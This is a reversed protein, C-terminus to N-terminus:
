LGSTWVDELFVVEIRYVAHKELINKVQEIAKDKDSSDLIVRKAETKRGM